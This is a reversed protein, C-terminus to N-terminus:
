SRIQFAGSYSKLKKVVLLFYIIIMVINSTSDEDDFEKKVESARLDLSSELSLLKGSILHILYLNIM